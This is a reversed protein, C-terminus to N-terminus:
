LHRSHPPRRITTNVTGGRAGTGRFGTFMRPISSRFGDCDDATRPFSILYPPRPPAATHWTPQPSPAPRVGARAQGAPRHHRNAKARQEQPFPFSGPTESGMGEVRELTPSPCRQLKPQTREGRINSYYFTKNKMENTCVVWRVFVNEVM